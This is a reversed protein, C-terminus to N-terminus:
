GNHRVIALLSSTSGHLICTQRELVMFQLLSASNRKYFLLEEAKILFCGLHPIWYKKRM